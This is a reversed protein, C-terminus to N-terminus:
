ADDGQLANYYSAGEKITILVTGPSNAITTGEAVSADDSAHGSVDPFGDHDVVHGLINSGATTTVIQSSSWYLATGRDPNQSDTSLLTFEFVDGPRPVIIPYYGALDGAKIEVLSVAIIGAMSQDADLPIWNGSSLELLEGRSIAQTTGAQFKGPLIYPGAAGFMSYRYASKNTAM